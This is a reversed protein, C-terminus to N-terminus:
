KYVTKYRVLVTVVALECVEQMEFEERTFSSLFGEEVEKGLSRHSPYLPIAIAIGIAKM